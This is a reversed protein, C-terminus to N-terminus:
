KVPSLPSTFKQHTAAERAVEWRDAQRRRDLAIAERRRGLAEVWERPHRLRVAEVLGFTMLLMGLTNRTGERGRIQPRDDWWEFKAEPAWALFEKFNIPEPILE